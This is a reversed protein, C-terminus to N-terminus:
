DRASSACHTGGWGGVRWAMCLLLKSLRYQDPTAGAGPRRDLHKGHSGPQSSRKLSNGLLGEYGLGTPNAAEGTLGSKGMQVLIQAATVFGDETAAEDMAYKIALIM